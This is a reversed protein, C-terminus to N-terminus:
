NVVIGTQSGKLTATVTDTATVSWTGITKLTVNGSFVHTGADTATFKYNAPLSAKSDTSTFHITGLYGVIRNGYADTATVRISGAVGHTRPSTLGSVVFKSLAAPTVVIGSQSGHITATVTDTATVSQTGVTKLIVNGSFVHTGADAVTFKYNAPLGAQIDSSTFHVTGLYSQVRNGYTDTATVRISGGIGAPRPSGLGSVVLKSLAAATVVIGTQSGHLSATVTDTATVSQTGATKLIVNASFVHTGADAATFTYNAPLKSAPDSSTFHVTGLYSSIRNGYADTATVRISGTSGATRPTTMGSVVLTTAAPTVSIGSQTGTISPTLTDTATVSRSGVTKLTVSFTGVGATLTANAPLVAAGDTSTFHVTGAYATATNGYADLAKVTLSHTVGAVTPSPLGSVALHTATAPNVVIAGQSGTISATTTDTATLSRTGATKLTVSFTHTGADAATFTYDAPLVAAPDSSTFHVKGRYPAATNGYADKATVTITGAVGATRPSALGSVVLTTAPAVVPMVASSPDSPDSPGVGNTAIVTFTYAQGNTLGSVSCSLAGTTTCTKGDPSSTVTYGTIASGGNGPATWSVLASANGATATVATPKGPVTPLHPTVKNSPDSEPGPGASNSAHVTFTYETANTLGSVTCSTASIMSCTVTGLGHETETVTYGTIASGGNGPATWTLGVTTNGAGAVLNTPKGPATLATFAGIGNPTGLGTPGDYGTVGNCLYTVTCTHWTVDNNGSVVDNLAATHGYLYSAPYTGAAPRGALAYIAAIIPSAVSTGGYATWLGNVYVAVGSGGAVASVDAETRKACGTDHQWSPKPEYVSCGSGAGWGGADGWASETWGRASGNRTLTTGGVAVVYQSAAPYGIGLHNAACNYGCDGTGATIAVGPHNYYADYYTDGSSEPGAYSNSVAVAGLSVATNVAAGLNNSYNDNAEVLLIHCNPCIASVMDIDLAIEGDWGKGVATAPYSTGGNQDVKRFCLNATTCPPLGYQSRYAALDAEATPLDYADVIAVTLGSGNSGSPLAYADQLDAPSYGPPPTLPSVASAPVAAVDVRRLALCQATGPTAPPCVAEV